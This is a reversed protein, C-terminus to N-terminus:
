NGHRRRRRGRAQGEDRSVAALVRTKFGPVWEVDLLVVEEKDMRRKQRRRKPQGSEAERPEMGPLWAQEEATM